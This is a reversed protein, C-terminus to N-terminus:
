RAALFEEVFISVDTVNASGVSYVETFGLNEAEKKIRLSPVIIPVSLTGKFRKWFEEVHQMGVVSGVVVCSIEEPDVGKVEKRVQEYLALRYLKCGRNELVSEIVGRGQRGTLLWVIEGVSIEQIERLGIVGESREDFPFITNTFSSRLISATERGIAIHKITKNSLSASSERYIRAAHGSLCIVLKPREKPYPCNIPSITLVPKQLVSIKSASLKHALAAAGPQSRSIWVKKIM